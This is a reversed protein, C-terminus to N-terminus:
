PRDQRDRDGEDVWGHAKRMYYQLLAYDTSGECILVSQRM